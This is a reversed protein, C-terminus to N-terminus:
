KKTRYYVYLGEEGKLTLTDKGKFGWAFSENFDDYYIKVSDKIIQYQYAKFHEPYYFTSKKIEFTPNDSGVLTWVGLLHKLSDNNASNADKLTEDSGMKKVVVSVSDRTQKSAANQNSLKNSHNCSFAILLAFLSLLYVKNMKNNHNPM